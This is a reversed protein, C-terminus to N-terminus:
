DVTPLYNPIEGTSSPHLLCLNFFLNCPKAPLTVQIAPRRIDRAPHRDMPRHHHCRLVTATSHAGKGLPLTHTPPSSREPTSDPASGHTRFRIRACLPDRPAFIVWFHATAAPNSRFSPTAAFTSVAPSHASAFITSPNQAVCHYPRSNFIVTSSGRCLFGERSEL